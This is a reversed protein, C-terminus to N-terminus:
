LIINIQLTHDKYKIKLFEETVTVPEITYSKYDITEKLTELYNDDIKTGAKFQLVIMKDNYFIKSIDNSTKLVTNLMEQEKTLIEKYIQLDGSTIKDKGM